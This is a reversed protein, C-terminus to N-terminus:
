HSRGLVLVVIASLVIFLFGAIAFILVKPVGVPSAVPMQFLAGTLESATFEDGRWGIGLRQAFAALIADRRPSEKEVMVQAVGGEAYIIWVSDHTAFYPTVKETVHQIQVSGEHNGGTGAIKIASWPITRVLGSATRLRLWEAGADVSDCGIVADMNM